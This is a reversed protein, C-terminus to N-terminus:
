GQGLATMSCRLLLRASIDYLRHVSHRAAQGTRFSMSSMGDCTEYRPLVLINGHVESGEHLDTRGLGVLQEGPKGLGRIACHLRPLLEEGLELALELQVGAEFLLM